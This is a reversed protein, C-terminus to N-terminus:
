KNLISFILEEPFVRTRKHGRHDMYKFDPNKKKYQIFLVIYIEDAQVENIKM